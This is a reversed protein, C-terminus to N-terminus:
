EERDGSGLLDILDLETIAQYLHGVADFFTEPINGELARKLAQLHKEEDWNIGTLRWNDKLEPIIIGKKVNVIYDGILERIGGCEGFVDPDILVPMDDAEFLAGPNLLITNCLYDNGALEFVDDEKVPTEDPWTLHEIREGPEKSINIEYCVGDFYFYTYDHSDQKISVTLDGDHYTNFYSVSWEMLQKLHRGNMRVKSLRNSFKYIKALDSKHIIGPLLNATPNGVADAAVKAGSYHRMVSLILNALATAQIEMLPLGLWLMGEILPGGRLEGIVIEADKRAIEDYPKLREMLEPDAPYTSIDVSDTTKDVIEWKGNNQKLNFDIVSMTRAQDKNMVTVVGNIETGKVLLHEHSAIVLDFEPLAQCIEAVSSNAVNFEQRLGMHYLGILVDYTGEIKKLIAKTEELPDTVKCSGLQKKNMIAIVPTTMGIIAVRVGEIERIVYGKSLRNGDEDYVNGTLCCASLDNFYQRVTDIGYDYDHNGSLCVDYGIANMGIVMPHTKGREVFLNASNEQLSDGADLLLTHEDRYEKVATALQALSGTMSEENLVYNWPVFKGHLDSTALIRLRMTGESQKTM